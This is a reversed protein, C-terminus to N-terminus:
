RFSAVGNVRNAVAMYTSTQALGNRYTVLYVLQTETEHTLEVSVLSINETNEFALLASEEALKLLLDHDDNATSANLFKTTQMVPNIDPKTCANLGFLLAFLLACQILLNKM